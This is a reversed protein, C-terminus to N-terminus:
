PQRRSKPIFYWGAFRRVTMKAQNLIEQFDRKLCSEEEPVNGDFLKCEEDYSHDIPHIRIFDEMRKRDQPTINSGM